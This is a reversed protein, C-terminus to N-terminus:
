PKKGRHSTSCLRKRWGEMKMRQDELDPTLRVLTRRAAKVRGSGLLAIFSSLKVTKKASKPDELAFAARLVNIFNVGSQGLLLSHFHNRLM